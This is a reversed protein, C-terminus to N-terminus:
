AALSVLPAPIFVMPPVEVPELDGKHNLRLGELGEVDPRYYAFITNPDIECALRMLFPHVERPANVYIPPYGWGVLIPNYGSYHLRDVLSSLFGKGNGFTPQIYLKAM